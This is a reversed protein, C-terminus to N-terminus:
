QPLTTTKTRKKIYEEIGLKQIDCLAAIVLKYETDNAHSIPVDGGLMRGLRRWIYHEKISTSTGEGNLIVATKVSGEDAMVAYCLQEPKIKVLELTVAVMETKCLEYVHETNSILIYRRRDLWNKCSLLMTGDRLIYDLSEITSPKDIRLICRLQEEVKKSIRVPHGGNIQVINSNNELIRTRPQADIFLAANFIAGCRYCCYDDRLELPGFKKFSPSSLTDDRFKQVFDLEQYASCAGCRCGNFAPYVLLMAGNNM